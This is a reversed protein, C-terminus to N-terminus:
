DKRKGRNMSSGKDLLREWHDELENYLRDALLQHAEAGPHIDFDAIQLVVRDEVGAYTGSLDLFLLGADDVLLKLRAAVDRSYDPPDELGPLCLVM